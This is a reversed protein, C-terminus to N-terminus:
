KLTIEIIGESNINFNDLSKSDRNLHRKITNYITLFDSEDNIFQSIDVGIVSDNVWDGPISNLILSVDQSDSESIVFDGDKIVIDSNEIAIDKM